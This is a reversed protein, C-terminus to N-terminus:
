TGSRDPARLWVAAIGGVAIMACWFATSAIAASIGASDGVVGTMWPVCFGGAAGAGAALGAATGPLEPFQQAARAIMLPFVCGLALGLVGFLLAVHPTALVVGAALVVAGLVGAAVLPSAGSSRPLAATALRGAFLGLWFGTIAARGGVPSQGLAGTAYPVAFLTVATEVGVYAFAIGAFPLLRPSRLVGLASPAEGGGRALPAPFRVVFALGALALHAAGTWRFSAAWDFRAALAGAILPGAMAGLTAGAHVLTMPRVARERYREVVVASVFTDYAGIGLGIAVV